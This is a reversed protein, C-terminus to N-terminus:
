QPQWAFGQSAHGKRARCSLDRCGVRGRSFQTRISDSFGGLDKPQQIFLFPFRTVDDCLLGPKRGPMNEWESEKRWAKETEDDFLHSLEYCSYYWSRSSRHQEALSAPAGEVNSFGQSEELAKGCSGHTGWFKWVESPSPYLTGSSPIRGWFDRCPLPLGYIGHKSPHPCTDWSHRPSGASGTPHTSRYWAAPWCLPLSSFHVSNGSSPSPSFSLM